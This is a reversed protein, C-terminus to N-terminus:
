PKAVTSQKPPRTQGTQPKLSHLAFCSQPSLSLSLSLFFSLSLSVITYWFLFLYFWTHVFVINWFQIKAAWQPKGKRLAFDRWNKIKKNKKELYHSLFMFKKCISKYLIEYLGRIFNVHIEHCTFIVYQKLLMYKECIMKIANIFFFYTIRV